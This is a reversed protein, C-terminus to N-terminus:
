SARDIDYNPDLRILEATPWYKRLEVEAAVEAVDGIDFLPGSKLQKSGTGSPNGCFTKYWWTFDTEGEQRERYYAVHTVTLRTATTM